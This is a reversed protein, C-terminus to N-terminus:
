FTYREEAADLLLSGYYPLSRLLTHAFGLEGLYWVKWFTNGVLSLSRLIHGVICVHMAGLCSSLTCVKPIQSYIYGV